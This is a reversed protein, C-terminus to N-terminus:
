NQYPRFNSRHYIINDAKTSQLISRNLQTTQGPSIKSFSTPPLELGFKPKVATRGYVKLPVSYLQNSM